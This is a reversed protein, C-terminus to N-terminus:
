EAGVVSAWGRARPASAAHTTRSFGSCPAPRVALLAAIHCSNSPAWGEHAISAQCGLALRPCGPTAANVPGGVAASVPRPVPAASRLRHWV